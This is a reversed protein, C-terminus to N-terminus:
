SNLAHSLCLFGDLDFLDTARLPAVMILTRRQDTEAEVFDSPHAIEGIRRRSSPHDSLNLVEYAHNAARLLLVIRHFEVLNGVPRTRSFFAHADTTADARAHALGTASAAFTLGRARAHADLAELAALHREM